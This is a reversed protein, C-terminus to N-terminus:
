HLYDIIQTIWRHLGYFGIALLSAWAVVGGARGRRLLHLLTLGAGLGVAPYVFHEWRVGQQAVLLLGLSLLTGGWWALLLWALLSLRSRQWWLVAGAISVALLLPYLYSWPLFLGGILGAIREPLPAAPAAPVETAGALRAAFILVYLPASYYLAAALVGGMGAGLTLAPPRLLALHPLRRWGGLGVLWAAALTAGLSIAVGFHGLMGMAVLLGLVGVAWRHPPALVLWALAPLALVQGGINAYEGISFSALMPPPVLYLAAGLLAARQGVGSRRLLLWLLLLVLSDLLAVGVQVVRVRTDIDSPLLLMAPALVLYVGPPYPAQGGGAEAPLGETFYIQGLAVELLNNANLRHDSFRAHPHLMGGTRIVFALLVLALVAGCTRTTALLHPSAVLRWGWANRTRQQWGGLMLWGIGALLAGGGLVALLPPLALALPLRWGALLVAALVAVGGVLGLAGRQDLVLWRALGYGLLLLAALQALVGWAPLRVGDVLPALEVARLTFGLDRPDSSSRLPVTQMHLWVDGAADAPVLVTYRRPTAAIALTRTPATGPQWMSVAPQGDPRGSAALLTMQWRGGGVGPLVISADQMAWRYAYGPELTWWQWTTASAPESANFGRLFPADDERRHSVVDGGIALRTHLPVQYALLWLLLSACLLLLLPLLERIIAPRM